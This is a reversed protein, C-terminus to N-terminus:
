NVNRARERIRAMMSNMSHEALVGLSLIGMIGAFFVFVVQLALDRFIPEM